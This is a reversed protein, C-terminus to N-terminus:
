YQRLIKMAECRWGHKNNETMKIKAMKTPVYHYSVTAEIQMERNVILM